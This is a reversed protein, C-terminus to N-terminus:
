GDWEDQVSAIVKVNMPLELFTARLSFVDGATIKRYLFSEFGGIHDKSIRSKGLIWTLKHFHTM